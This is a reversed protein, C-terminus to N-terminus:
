IKVTFEQTAYIVLFHLSFFTGNKGEYFWQNQLSTEGTSSSPASSLTDTSSTRARRPRRGSSTRSLAAPPTLLTPQALFDPAISSRCMPCQYGNTLTVGQRLCHVNHRHPMYCPLPLSPHTLPTATLCTAPSHCHPMHCPLPLSAHTLLTATLCTDPSHCHPM